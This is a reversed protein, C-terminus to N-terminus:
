QHYRKRPESRRVRNRRRKTRNARRAARLRVQGHRPAGGRVFSSTYITTLNSGSLDSACLWLCRLPIDPHSQMAEGSVTKVKTLNDPLTRGRTREVFRTSLPRFPDTSTNRKTCRITKRMIGGLCLCTGGFSLFSFNYVWAKNQGGLGKVGPTRTNAAGRRWLQQEGVRGRVGFGWELVGSGNWVWGGRVWGRTRRAFQTNRVAELAAVAAQSGADQADFDPPLDATYGWPSM